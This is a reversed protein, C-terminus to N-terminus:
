IYFRARKREQNLGQVRRFMWSRSPSNQRDRVLMAGIVEALEDDDVDNEALFLRLAAGKVTCLAVAIADFRSSEWYDTLDPMYM